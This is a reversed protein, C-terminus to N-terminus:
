GQNPGMVMFPVGAPDAISALRGYPTEDPAMLESGGLEKARAVAADTDPVQIYFNWYSPRGDLMATADMIGALAHEDKGLTSYRLEPTDSMPHIDWGFVNAYFMLAADYDNSLVEFWAPAGDEGRTAFGTMEKPQWVFVTAGGPDAVVAMTGLDGVEMAGHVEEGANAKAMEVTAEADNSELYVHWSDPNDGDNEMCGAILQGEREFTIYGASDSDVATWGFLGGYFAKASDTDPTFLEIWIPEGPVNNLSM